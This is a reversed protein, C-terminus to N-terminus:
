PRDGKVFRLAEIALEEDDFVRTSGGDSRVHRTLQMKGTATRVLISARQFISFLAQRFDKVTEEFEPDNRSPASRLDVLLGLTRRPFM